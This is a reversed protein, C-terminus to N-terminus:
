VFCSPMLIRTAWNHNAPLFIGTGGCQGCSVDGIDSRIEVMGCGGCSPCDYDDEIMSWAMSEANQYGFDILFRLGHRELYAGCALTMSDYDAGSYAAYKAMTDIM